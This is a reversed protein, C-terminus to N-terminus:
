EDVVELIARRGQAAAISSLITRIASVTKGNKGIIKGIDERNCRLEFVITRDGAVESLKVEDPHHVLEHIIYALLENM